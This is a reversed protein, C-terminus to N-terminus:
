NEDEVFYVRERPKEFKTPDLGLARRAAIQREQEAREPTVDGYLRTVVRVNGSTGTVTMTVESM